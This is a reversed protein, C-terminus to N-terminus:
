DRKKIRIHYPNCLKLNPTIKFELQDYKLSTDVEYERLFNAITTKM